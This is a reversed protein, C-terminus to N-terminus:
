RAGRRRQERVVRRRRRAGSSRASSARHHRCRCEARWALRLVAVGSWRPCRASLFQPDCRARRCCGAAALARRCASGGAGRRQSAALGRRSQEPVVPGRGNWAIGGYVVLRRGAPCWSAPRMSSRVVGNDDRARPDGHAEIMSPFARGTPPRACPRASRSDASGARSNRCSAFDLLGAARRSPSWAALGRGPAGREDAILSRASRRRCRDARQRGM